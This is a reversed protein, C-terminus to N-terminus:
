KSFTKLSKNIFYSLPTNDEIIEKETKNELNRYVSNVLVILPQFNREINKYNDYPKVIFEEVCFNYNIPYLNDLGNFIKYDLFLNSDMKLLEKLIISGTVNKLNRKGSNLDKVINERNLQNTIIEKWKIMLPTNPKSGFVGNCLTRNNEKIFFGNKEEILDFLEKLNNMVLTDSDLWIGGYECILCVRLFDAQYAPQIQYFSSPLEKIYDNINQPTIFNVKYNNEDNSHLFIIKRLLSILVNDAGTWYLFVNNVM